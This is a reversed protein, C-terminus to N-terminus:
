LLIIRSREIPILAAPISVEVEVVKRIMEEIPITHFILMYWAGNATM